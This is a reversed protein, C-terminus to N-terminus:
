TLRHALMWVFYNDRRDFRPWFNCFAVRLLPRHPYRTAASRILRQTRLNTLGEIVDRDLQAGVQPYWRRVQSRIQTVREQGNCLLWLLAATDNLHWEAPERRSRAILGAAVQEAVLGPRRGLYPDAAM